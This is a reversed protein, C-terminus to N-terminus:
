AHCFVKYEHEFRHAYPCTDIYFLDDRCTCWKGLAQGTLRQVAHRRIGPDGFAKGLIHSRWHMQEMENLYAAKMDLVTDRRGYSPMRTTSNVWITIPGVQPMNNASKPASTILTSGGPPSEVRLSNPDPAPKKGINLRFLFLMTSSRL